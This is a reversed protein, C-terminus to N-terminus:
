APTRDPRNLWLWQILPAIGTRLEPRALEERFAAVDVLEPDLGAGDWQAAFARTHSALYVRDFRAKSERTLLREPLVGGFIAVMMATRSGRGHPGGWRALAALVRPDLLPHVVRVGSERAVLDLQARALSLYRAGAIWAVYRDFRGPQLRLSDVVLEHFRGRAGASLWSAQFRSRDRVLSARKLPRPAFRHAVRLLDRTRASERRALVDGVRRWRWGGLLTDGDLGTVVTGAPAHEILPVVFHANMPYIPGHRELLPRALPGVIDLEDHHAIRVWEDLGIHRVVLEQWDREDTEPLHPFTQTVAVPPELGERAALRIAVALLASSDRGGSFAIVCPPRLLAERLVDELASLPDAGGAPLPVPEPRGLAIGSAIELGSLGLDGYRSAAHLRARPTELTTGDVM